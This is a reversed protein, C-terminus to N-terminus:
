IIPTFIMPFLVNVAIIASLGIVAAMAYLVIDFLLSSIAM